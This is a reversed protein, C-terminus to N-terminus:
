VFRRLAQKVVSMIYEIDSDDRFTYVHNGNGWKGVDTVDRFLQKPDDIQGRDLNVYSKLGSKQVVIDLFNRNNIKFGIYPKNPKVVIESNMSLVAEKVKNYLEFIEESTNEFHYGEDYTRVEKQVKQLESNKTLKSLDAEKRLNSTIQNLSLTSDTYKKIEWLEIPLNKFNISNKQHTTFSPAIFLVRTQSWDVDKRKLNKDLCENYELVFDAKSNHMTSLYSMGQDVVSFSTTNKFEIIVFSNTSNDFALSDLRTGNNLIMESKVFQLDFLDKLNSSILNQMERESKFGVSKILSLKNGSLKLLM